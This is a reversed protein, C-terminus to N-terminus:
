LSVNRQLSAALVTSAVQWESRAFSTLEAVSYIVFASTVSPM